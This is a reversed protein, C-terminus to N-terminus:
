LEKSMYSLASM